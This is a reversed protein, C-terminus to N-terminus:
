AYALESWEYSRKIGQLRATRALVDVHTVCRPPGVRRRMAAGIAPIGAKRKKLSTEIERKTSALLNPRLRKQAWLTGPIIGVGVLSTGNVYGVVECADTDGSVRTEWVIRLANM